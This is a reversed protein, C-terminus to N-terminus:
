HKAAQLRLIDVVNYVAAPLKQTWAAHAVYVAGQAFLARNQAVHRLELRETDSAFFVTHDGVVDGGRLVAMGVDGRPRKGSRDIPLMHLAEDRGQAVAQALMIATGSPSDVKNRHHMELVEADFTGAPLWAAAQSVLLSLVNAGLSMNSSFVIPIHAGASAISQKQADSFGTTGLVYLKQQAVCAALHKDLTHPATFDIMVDASQLATNLCADRGCAAVTTAGEHQTAATYLQTAMRGTAGAILVRM